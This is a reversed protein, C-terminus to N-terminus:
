RLLRRKNDPLFAESNNLAIGSYNEREDTGQYQSKGGGNNNAV